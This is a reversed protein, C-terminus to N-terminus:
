SRPLCGIALAPFPLHLQCDLDVSSQQSSGLGGLLKMSGRFSQHSYQWSRDAGTAKTTSQRRRNEGAGLPHTTWVVLYRSGM